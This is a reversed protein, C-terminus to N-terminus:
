SETQLNMQPGFKTQEKVVVMGAGTKFDAIRESEDKKSSVGRVRWVSSVRRGVYVDAEVMFCVQLESRTGKIRCPGGKGVVVVM